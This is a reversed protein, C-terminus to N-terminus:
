QQGVKRKAWALKAAASKKLKTEESDPGYKKGRKGSGNKNGLMSRRMKLRFSDPRKRGRLKSATKEVIDPSVKRGRLSNAIMVRSEASFTRGKQASSMKLKTEASAEAGSALPCINYGFERRFSQWSDLWFQERVLLEGVPVREQIHFRFSKSGYLNWAAQLHNNKHIGKNLRFRHQRIRTLLRRTSGVYVKGNVLNKILYIGSNM